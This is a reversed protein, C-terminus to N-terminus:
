LACFVGCFAMVRQLFLSSYDISFGRTTPEFGVSAVLSVGPNELPKATKQHHNAPKTMARKSSSVDGNYGM